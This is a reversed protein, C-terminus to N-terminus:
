ERVAECEATLELEPYLLIESVPIGQLVAEAPVVSKRWLSSLVRFIPHRRHRPILTTLKICARPKDKRGEPSDRTDRCNAWSSTFM